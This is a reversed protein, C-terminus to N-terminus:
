ATMHKHTHQMVGSIKLTMWCSEVFLLYISSDRMHIFCLLLNWLQCHTMMAYTLARQVDNGSSM